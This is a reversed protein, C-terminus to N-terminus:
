RMTVNVYKIWLFEGLNYLVGVTLTYYKKLSNFHLVFATSSWFPVVCIHFSVWCNGRENWALLIIEHSFFFFCNFICASSKWQVICAIYAQNCQLTLHSGLLGLLNVNMRFFNKCSIETEENSSYKWTCIM